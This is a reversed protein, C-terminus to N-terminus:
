RNLRRGAKRNQREAKRKLLRKKQRAITVPNDFVKNDQEKPEEM